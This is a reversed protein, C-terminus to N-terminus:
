ALNICYEGSWIDGPNPRRVEVIGLIDIKVRGNELKRSEWEKIINESEM